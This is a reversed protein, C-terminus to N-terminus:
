IREKKELRKSNSETNTMSKKPQTKSCELVSKENAKTQLTSYEELGNVIHFANEFYQKPNPHTLRVQATSSRQSLHEGLQNYINLKQSPKHM